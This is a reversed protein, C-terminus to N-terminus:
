PGDAEQDPPPPSPPPPPTSPPSADPAEQFLEDLKHEFTAGTNQGPNPGTNM